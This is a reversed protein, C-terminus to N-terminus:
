SEDRRRETARSRRKEVDRKRRPIFRGGYHLHGIGCETTQFFRSRQFAPTLQKLITELGPNLPFFVLLGLSNIIALANVRSRESGEREVFM